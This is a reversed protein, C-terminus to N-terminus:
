DPSGGDQTARTGAPADVIGTGRANDPGAQSSRALEDFLALTALAEDVDLKQLAFGVHVIVYDDVAVDEVLSLSIRKRVGELDVIAEDDGVLEVVKAPIALCM